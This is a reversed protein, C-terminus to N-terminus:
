WSFVQEGSKEYWFIQNKKVGALECLKQMQDRKATINSSTGVWCDGEKTTIKKLGSRFYGDKKAAVTEERTLWKVIDSDWPKDLVQPYHTLIYEATRRMGEAMSKVVIRESGLIIYKKGVVRDPEPKEEPKSGDASIDTYAVVSGAMLKSNESRSRDVSIDISFAEVFEKILSALVPTILMIKSANEPRRPRDRHYVQEIRLILGRYCDNKKFLNSDLEGYKKCSNVYFAVLKAFCLIGKPLQEEVDELSAHFESFDPGEVDGEKSRSFDNLLQVLAATFYWKGNKVVTLISPDEEKINKKIKDYKLALQNAFWLAGYFRRFVKEEVSEDAEMWAKVFVDKQQFAYAGADDVQFKLLTSAGQSRAEGPKGLLAKGARVFSVLDMQQNRSIEEGRRALRFEAQGTKMGRELYGALKEVFPTTFAIDEIKIPKQRNLAVSIETAITNNGEPVFIVKVMVQATKSNELKESLKKKESDDRSNRCQYEMDFFYRASATITQAGNIVSFNLEQDPQIQGLCLSEHNTLKLDRNRVLITIGNNKYWFYEPEDELTKCIARDVGLMENIGIRVNNKFLLDGVTNYLEVLQFLETPFVLAHLSDKGRDGTKGEDSDEINIRSSIPPMHMIEYRRLNKFEVSQEKYEQDLIYTCRLPLNKRGTRRQLAATIRSKVVTSFGKELQIRARMGQVFFIVHIGEVDPKIEMSAAKKIVQDFLVKEDKRYVALILQERSEIKLTESDSVCDQEECSLRILEQRAEEDEWWEDDAYDERNELVQNIYNRFIESRRIKQSKLETM